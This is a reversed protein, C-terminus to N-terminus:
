IHHFAIEEIKRIGKKNLEAWFRNFVKHTTDVDAMARHKKEVNIDLFEAIKPLSNSPFNFHQRAVRLTDVIPLVPLVIDCLALEMALFNLDFYANHCVLSSGKILKLIKNAVEEFVPADKVMDYTICNVAQAGYSIPRCPNILSEWKTIKGNEERRLIAIECIRDGNQTSLGTTEVDLFALAPLNCKIKKM